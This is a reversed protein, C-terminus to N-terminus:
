RRPRGRKQGEAQAAEIPTDSITVDKGLLHKDLFSKVRTSVEPGGFGHGGGEVKVFITSAGTQRQAEYLREAQRINVTNDQTGHMILFPPDDATVHTVPSAQRAVAEKENLPGGFLTSNIEDAARPSGIGPLLFDSPGCFDVVCAVRSSSGSMGINGELEKVDGSTGLLSALHGGASAGWVGIKDPDIGLSKNNARLYRVAAKCDHIQAPWIAVDLLRYDISAAIYEGTAVLASLRAPDGSKSGNRWGGGHIWVVCPRPSDSVAAPRYLDLKLSIDGAKAYEIDRQIDVGLVPESASPQSWAAPQLAVFVLMAFIAVRVAEQLM